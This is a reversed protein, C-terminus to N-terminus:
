TVEKKNPPKTGSVIWVPNLSEMRTGYPMSRSRSIQVQIMEPICQKKELLSYATSVNQVLVVNIVIIGSPLLYECATDLIDSLDRGGGGVFIRDPRPLTDVNEPFTGHHIQVNGCRFQRINDAIDGLREKNKEIAIVRGEPMALAAEVSISGSGSGIDWLVHRTHTLKLKSLSISRIESKTILGKAHSFRDEAMGLHTEHSVDDPMGPTQKLLIVVNPHPFTQDIMQAPHDFWTIAEKHRHGLHALVCIRFHLMQHEMLQRAIYVPDASPRTLFVAKHIRSLTSFCFPPRNQNHLSIVVADHWPEKIASFAAAVTNVNPHFHILSPDFHALLTSGIGHFLPDGSALVVVRSDPIRSRIKQIFSDIHRDVVLTEGQFDPFLSLQQRGGALVDANQVIELHQSTLHQRGQGIGIVHIPTM